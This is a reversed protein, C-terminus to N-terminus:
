TSPKLGRTGPKVVNVLRYRGDFDKAREGGGLIVGEVGVAKEKELDAREVIGEEVAWEIFENDIRWGQEAGEAKEGGADVELHGGIHEMKEGFEERTWKRGCHGCKEWAPPKRRQRKCREVMDSLGEPM